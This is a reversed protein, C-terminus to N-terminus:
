QSPKANRSRVLGVLHRVESDEDNLLKELPALSVSEPIEIFLLSRVAARRIEVEDSSLMDFIEGVLEDSNDISKRSARAVEGISGLASLAFKRISVNEDLLMRRLEPVSGYPDIEALACSVMRALSVDNPKSKIMELLKPASQRGASGMLGISKVCAVSVDSGANNAQGLLPDIALPGIKAIAYCAAERLTLDRSGLLQILPLIADKARPGFGGLAFAADFVVERDSERLLSILPGVWSEADIGGFGLTFVLSRRESLNKSSLQAIAPEALQALWVSKAIEKTTVIVQKDNVYYAVGCSDLIFRLSSRRSVGAARFQGGPGFFTVRYLDVGNRRLAEEDVLVAIPGWFGEPGLLGAELKPYEALLLVFGGLSSSHGEFDFVSVVELEKQIADRGSILTPAPFALQAFVMCFTAISLM